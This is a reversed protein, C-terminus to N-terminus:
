CPRDSRMHFSEAAEPRAGSAQGSVLRLQPQWRFRRMEDLRFSNLHGSVCREQVIDDAEVFSLSGHGRSVDPAYLVMEDCHSCRVGLYWQGPIPEPLIPHSSMVM